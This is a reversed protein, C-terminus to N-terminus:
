KRSIVRLALLERKLRHIKDEYSLIEYTQDRINKEIKQYKIKINKISNVTKEDMEKKLIEQIEIYKSKCNKVEGELSVLIKELRIRQNHANVSRTVIFSAAVGLGILNTLMLVLFDLDMKM